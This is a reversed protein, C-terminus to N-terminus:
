ERGDAASNFLEAGHVGAAPWTFGAESDPGAADRGFRAHTFISDTHQAVARRKVRDARAARDDRLMGAVVSSGHDGADVEALVGGTQFEDAPHKSSDRKMM